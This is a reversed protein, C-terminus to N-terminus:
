QSKRVKYPAAVLQGQNIFLTIDGSEDTRLYPIGRAELRQLMAYGPLSQSGSSCSILALGPQVRDLFVDGTSDSSGHHAVKLVDCPVAAYNEYRGTLDSAALITYGGMEVALVMPLDNADQGSRITEVQPWLARLTTTPYRHEAGAAIETVPIGANALVDLVALAEEDLRQKAANVPMYVQDIRIGCDLLYQVGGAHDVHLHTLYLADIDRGADMLYDVTANGDVGVDIAITKERDFLLAADAQGVALQVYRTAPPASLALGTWTLAAAVVVTILRKWAKARIIWSVAALMVIITMLWLAAVSGVRISAMPLTSLLRVAQLLLNGMAAAAKGVASGLGPVPSLVLAIMDVPVLLSIYPVVLLNILIGYVPLQHFFYATPLVVGLQASLSFCFLNGAQFALRYLAQRIAGNGQPAPMIRRLLGTLVPKLLLIGGVASVSLVFGASFAQLPNLVLVVLMATGLNTLSDSRRNFLVASSSILLMVAARVSAASFGTILCYAALFVALVILRSRRMGLRSMIWYLAAGVIGIHLGSVSMVHAIGLRSFAQYEQEEVGERDSFLLAMALDADDGMTRTLASRFTMKIRYAWDKVPATQPTNEVQLGQSAAIGYTMGNQLMWARFDFRSEGSKGDPQYVRGSLRVKAGDFLQPAEEDGYYLTCYARGKQPRGDLEVDTLTFTIRHDTRIRAEGYVYGTIQEYRGSWPTAPHLSPQVRLMGLACFCVAVALVASRKNLLLLAGMGVGLGFLIWLWPGDSVMRGLCCGAFFALGAFLLTHNRQPLKKQM